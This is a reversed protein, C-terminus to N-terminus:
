ELVGKNESFTGTALFSDSFCIAAAKHYLSTADTEHYGKLKLNVFLQKLDAELTNVANAQVLNKEILTSKRQRTM